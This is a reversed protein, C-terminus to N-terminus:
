DTIAPLDMALCTGRGPSSELQADGGHNRIIHLVMALGLGTGGTAEKTSFFPDFARQLVDEPMGVGDDQVTVRWFQCGADHNAPVAELSVSVRGGRPEGTAQMITVADRANILANLFAQELRLFDGQVLCDEIPRTWHVAVEAPCGKRALSVAADVVDVLDLRKFPEERGGSFVLLRRIMDSAKRGSSEVLALVASLEDMEPMRGDAVDAKLLSVGGLMAGLVNNMDHAMGAALTGALELKQTQRIQSEREKLTRTM